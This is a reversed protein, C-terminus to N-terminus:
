KCTGDKKQDKTQTKTQLQDAAYLQASFSLAAVAVVMVVMMKRIKMKTEEKLKIGGAFCIRTWGASNGNRFPVTIRAKFFVFLRCEPRTLVNQV